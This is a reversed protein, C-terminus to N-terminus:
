VFEAVSIPGNLLGHAAHLDTEAYLTKCFLLSLLVPYVIPAKKVDLPGHMM